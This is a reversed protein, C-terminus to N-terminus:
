ILRGAQSTGPHLRCCFSCCAVKDDLAALSQLIQISNKITEPKPKDLFDFGIIDKINMAKM